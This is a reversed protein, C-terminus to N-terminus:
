AIVDPLLSELANLLADTDAKNNYAQISIRVYQRGAHQTLPIEVKFDQYLRKKLVAPDTIDPLSAVAMQAYASDDPYISTQGTLAHVRNVTDALLAHCDAQVGAWDHTEQFTIAAPVSLYAAYDKTGLYEYDDLFQSGLSEDQLRRWGVILPEIMGQHRKDVFLFASGKPSCLWKHCNGTYFDPQIDQLDLPLQGPVHAGDIVTLIGAERARACLAKVPLTLATVSTIHSVFIVRTQDTVHQWIDALIQEDNTAPLTVPAKKYTFGHKNAAYRWNNDCAGYEQDTSLVEDGASLKLSNVVVNVGFTANPVFILDDGNAHLFTGLAHRAERLANSLDSQFYTVPQFELRRQWAQYTDFVPKPSAGFSGHNLFHIDPNLLFQTKLNERTLM